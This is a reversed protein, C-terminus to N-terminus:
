ITHAPARIRSRRSPKTPRRATSPSCPTAGHWAAGFPRRPSRSWHLAMMKCPPRKISALPSATPPAGFLDRDAAGSVSGRLATARVERGRIRVVFSTGLETIDGEPTRVVFPRSPDHTVDFLAYGRTLEVGRETNSIVISAVGAGSLTITSGDGLCITRVPLPTPNPLRSLPHHTSFLSGQDERLQLICLAPTARKRAGPERRTGRGLRALRTEARRAEIGSAPADRQKGSGTALLGGCHGMPVPKGFHSNTPGIRVKLLDAVSVRELAHPKEGGPQCITAWGRISQKRLIRRRSILRQM